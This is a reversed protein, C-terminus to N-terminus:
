LWPFIIPIPKAECRRPSVGTVPLGSLASYVEFHTPLPCFFHPLVTFSEHRNHQGTHLCPFELLNITTAGLSSTTIAPDTWIRRQIGGGPRWIFIGDHTFTLASLFLTQADQSPSTDVRHCRNSDSETSLVKMWTARPDMIYHNLQNQRYHSIYWKEQMWGLM